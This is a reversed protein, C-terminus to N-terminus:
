LSKLVYLRAWNFCMKEVALTFKASQMITVDREQRWLLLILCGHYKGCAKPGTRGSSLFDDMEVQTRWMSFAHKTQIIVLIIYFFHNFANRHSQVRRRKWWQKSIVHRDWLFAFLSIHFLALWVLNGGFWGDRQGATLRASILVPLTEYSM